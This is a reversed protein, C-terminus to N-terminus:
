CAAPALFPQIEGSDLCRAFQGGVFFDGTRM